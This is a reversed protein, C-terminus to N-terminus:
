NTGFDLYYYCKTEGVGYLTSQRVIKGDIYIRCIISNEADTSKVKIFIIQKENSVEFLTKYPTKLTSDVCTSGFENIYEVVVGKTNLVEYKVVKQIPQKECSSIFLMLFIIIVGIVFIIIDTFQNLRNTKIKEM